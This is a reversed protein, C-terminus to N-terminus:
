IPKLLAKLQMKFVIRLRPVAANSLFSAIMQSILTSIAAGVAGYRPILFINLCINVIAGGIAQILSYRMMGENITWPTMGVGIFVFVASWIHIALILGASTYEYGYFSTVLFSSIFPMPLAIVYAIRVLYNFLQQLHQYYKDKSELRAQTISPMVSSMITMPIFYWIESFRLAASYLGVEKNGMMQGLMIQDIRMYIMIALGSLILPWSEKILRCAINKRPRWLAAFSQRKLYFLVLGAAGVIIEALASWAFATLPAKNLILVVRVMALAVFASNKAIVTYKSQVQSQFWLDIADFSQFIMGAAIIGVLWHTQSEAPRMIFIAALSIFFAVGGGCLKLIFASSLIEYKREPERVIDRVVIGDLGLSAFAAFLAVFAFAFNYAGFQEPGLYRAVWVGVILGVGMRLIKDFFLWGTNGLIKQLNHRGEIRKKVFIPLFSLWKSDSQTTL